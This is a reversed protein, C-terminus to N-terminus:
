EIGKVGSKLCWLYLQEDNLVWERRDEDNLRKVGSMGHRSLVYDDIEVRFKRIFESM